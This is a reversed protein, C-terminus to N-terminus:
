GLAKWFCVLFDDVRTRAVQQVEAYHIDSVPLSCSIEYVIEDYESDASASGIPAKKLYIHLSLLVSEAREIVVPCSLSFCEHERSVHLIRIDSGADDTILTVIEKEHPGLASYRYDSWTSGAFASEAAAFIESLRYKKGLPLTYYM